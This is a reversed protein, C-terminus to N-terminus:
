LWMFELSSMLKLIIYSQLYIILWEGLTTYSMNNQNVLKDWFSLLLLYILTFVGLTLYVNLSLIFFLNHGFMQKVSDCSKIKNCVFYVSTNRCKVPSCLLIFISVYGYYLLKVFVSHVSINDAYFIYNVHCNSTIFTIFLEIRREQKNLYFSWHQYTPQKSNIVEEM